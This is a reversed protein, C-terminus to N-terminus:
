EQGWSIERSFARKLGKVSFYLALLIRKVRQKQMVM